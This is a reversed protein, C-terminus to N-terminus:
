PLMASASPTPFIPDGASPRTCDPLRITFTTGQGLKSTVEITGGQAAVVAQCISLGLGLGRSPTERQRAKDGQYFRDFIRPLDSPSIGAGTDTVELVSAHSTEDLWLDLSVRGGAPTFKIANDLLNNVIQWLRNGDGRVMVPELRRTTLEVEAAEAVAQFMELSSLVISDWRVMRAELRLRGADGEALMLLQNVLIRMQGCEELLVSLVEKYEEITRDANLAIELSSQLATLPSRLEHAANATFDRSQQLYSAIRDLFNNITRSLQDLEDRTGRIPLRQDLNTPHLRATTRIINAIPRTARGALLYSGLPVALLLVIAVGLLLRNFRAMELHARGLSCGVRVTLPESSSGLVQRCIVRHNGVTTPTHFSVVNSPLIDLSPSQESSWVLTGQHDLLQVFLRRRPHGTAQRNFRAHLREPEEALRNLDRVASYLEEKIFEDVMQSLTLRLGERLAALGILLLVLFVTTNWLTLRFRLTQCFTKLREYRM